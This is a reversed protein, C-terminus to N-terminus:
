RGIAEAVELARAQSITEFDTPSFTVTVPAGNNISLGLVWTVVFNFSEPQTGTVEAAQAQTNTVSRQRISIPIQAGALVSGKIAILATVTPESAPPLAAEVASASTNPLVDVGRGANNIYDGGVQLAIAVGGDAPANTPEDYVITYQVIIPIQEPITWSTEESVVFSSGDPRTITISALQSTLGFYGATGQYTALITNAIVQPDGGEVIAEISKAPVGNVPALTRNNNIDAFTVGPIENLAKVIAPKTCAGGLSSTAPSALRTRGAFDSEIPAGLSARATSEVTDWGVTRDVILWSSTGSEVANISGSATAKLTTEVFGNALILLPDGNADLQPTRWLSDNPLYRVLKDGVPTGPEGALLASISSFAASKRRTAQLRLHYDVFVGTAQSPDLIDLFDAALNDGSVLFESLVKIERGTYSNPSTDLFEDGQAPFEALFSSELESFKDGATDPTFGTDDLKAM